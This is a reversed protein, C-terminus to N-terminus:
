SYTAPCVSDGDSHLRYAAEVLEVIERERGELSAEVEAGSIVSFTPAATM